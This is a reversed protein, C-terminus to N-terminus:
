AKMHKWRTFSIEMVRDSISFAAAPSDSAMTLVLAPGVGQLIHHDGIQLTRYLENGVRQIFLVPFLEGTQLDDLCLFCGLGLTQSSGLGFCGAFLM